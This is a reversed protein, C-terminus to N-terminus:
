KSGRIRAAADHLAMSLGQDDSTEADRANLLSKYGGAVIAKAQQVSFGADRALFQEFERETPLQDSKVRSILSHQNMPFTVLSVEMLKVQILKRIGLERDTEYNETRYGISLGDLVGEKLFEYAERGKSTALLLKGRCFLGKTDERMEIWKGCPEDNRHQWLMKVKAAPRSVLSKTFAGPLIMDKGDDVDNFTAGYGEFEGDETLDKLEFNSSLGYEGRFMGDKLEIRQKSM